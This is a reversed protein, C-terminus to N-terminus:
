ILPGDPGHLFLPRLTPEASEIWKERYAKGAMLLVEVLAFHDFPGPEHIACKLAVLTAFALRQEPPDYNYPPHILDGDPLDIPMMM